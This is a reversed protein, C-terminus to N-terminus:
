RRRWVPVDTKPEEVVLDSSSGMESGNLSLAVIGAQASRLAELHELAPCSQAATRYSVTIDVIFQTTVVNVDGGFTAILETGLNLSTFWFNRYDFAPKLHIQARQHGSTGNDSWVSNDGPSGPSTGAVPNSIPFVCSIANNQAEVNPTGDQGWVSFKLIRLEPNTLPLCTRLEALTLQGVGANITINKRLRKVGVVQTSTQPPDVVNSVRTTTMAPPDSQGPAHGRRARPLPTVAMATKRLNSQRRRM